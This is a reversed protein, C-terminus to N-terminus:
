HIQPANNGCGAPVTALGTVFRPGPGPIGGPKESGTVTDTM